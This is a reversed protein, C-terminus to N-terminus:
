QPWETLTILDFVAGAPDAVTAMRGPGWDNPPVFVTGGNASVAECAADVDAVGFSVKWHPPVGPPPAASTSAVPAGNLAFMTPSDPVSELTASTWGFLERYFAAAAADDHTSVEAWTFAGPANVIDSGIAALPKWACFVAGTSDAAILMRGAADEGPEPVDFPPQVVAGGGSTIRQAIADADDVTIYVNWCPPVGAEAMEPPLDFIGAASHGDVTAMVYNVDRSREYEWGLVARYFDLAGEVDTTALDVWSPAGVPHSDRFPM